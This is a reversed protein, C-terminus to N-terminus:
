LFCGTDVDLVVGWFAADMVLGSAIGTGPVAALRLYPVFRIVWRRFADVPCEVAGSVRTPTQLPTDLHIPIHSLARHLTNAADSDASTAGAANAATRRKLLEDILTELIRVGDWARVAVAEADRINL